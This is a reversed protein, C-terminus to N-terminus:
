RGLGAHGHEGGLKKDLGNKWDWFNSGVYGAKIMEGLVESDFLGSILEIDQPGNGNMLNFETLATPVGKEAPSYQRRDHSRSRLRDSVKHTLNGSFSMM